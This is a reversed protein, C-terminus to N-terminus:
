FMVKVGRGSTRPVFRDSWVTVDSEETEYLKMDQFTWLVYAFGLQLEAFALNQGLCARPGRSFSLLYKTPPNPVLWRDPNFTNPDPFVRPTLHVHYTTISAPTGRPIIWDKYMMDHHPDVRQIHSTVGFSLRLGENIVANFYKLTELDGLAPREQTAEFVKNLEELLKTKIEPNALVYYSLVSLTWATTETGAGIITQGEQRLRDLTKESEPLNSDALISHFITKHEINKDDKAKATMIEHVNTTMDNQFSFLALQKEGIAKMVWRPMSKLPKILWPFQRFFHVGGSVDNMADHFASHFDDATEIYNYSKGFAYESVVDNTYCSWAMSITVPKKGKQYNRFRAILRDVNAQIAPSIRNISAKSFFKNLPVRRIKHLDHSVTGFTADMLGFARIYYEYKDRKAGYLQDFYDPDKIHVEWPSIRVIPGYNEHLELLKFTYQGGKIVEYYAEYLRTLAALKPGPFKALPSLYLRWIAGYIAYVIWSVLIVEVSSTVSIM